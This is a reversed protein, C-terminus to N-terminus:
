NSLRKMPYRGNEQMEYCFGSPVIEILRIDVYDVGLVIYGSDELVNIETLNYFSNGNM